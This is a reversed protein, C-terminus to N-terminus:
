NLSFEFLNAFIVKILLILSAIMFFKILFINYLKLALAIKKDVLYLQFVKFNYFM